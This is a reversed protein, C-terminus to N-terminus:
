EETGEEEEEQRDPYFKVTINKDDIPLNEELSWKYPLTIETIKTDKLANTEIAKIGSKEGIILEALEACGSFAEEGIVTVTDPIDVRRLAKCGVFARSNIFYLSSPLTIERLSLCNTFAGPRIINIGDPLDVYELATCQYFFESAITDTVGGAEITATKLNRCEAFGRQNDLVYCNPIIVSTISTGQFARETMGRVPLGLYNNPLVLIGGLNEKDKAEILYFENGYNDESLYFNFNSNPTANETNKVWKAYLVMDKKLTANQLWNYFTTREEDTCWGVFTYGDKVPSASKPMVTDTDGHYDPIESGGDTDFKVTCELPKTSYVYESYVPINETVNTLYEEILERTETNEGVKEYVVWRKSVIETYHSEDSLEYRDPLEPVEDFALSGGYPVIFKKVVTNDEHMFTIVRDAKEAEVTFSKTQSLNKGDVAGYLRVVVSYTKEKEVTISRNNNVTVPTNDPLVYAKVSVFLDYKMEYSSFNNVSYPLYYEGAPANVVDTAEIYLDSPFAKECGTFIAAVLAVLILFLLKKKM